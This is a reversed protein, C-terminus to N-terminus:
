KGALAADLAPLSGRLELAVARARLARIVAADARGEIVDALARARAVMFDSWPTPEISAYRELAEAHRRAEAAAGAELAIDIADSRFWLPNHSLAGDGLLAEGDALCRAREEPSPAVRARASLLMAGAFKPGVPRLMEECEDLHRRAGDIDGTARAIHALMVLDIAAFRRSGIARALPLSRMIPEVAEAYHGAGVLVFGAIEDAMVEAVRHGIRRAVERAHRSAALAAPLNGLYFECIATM